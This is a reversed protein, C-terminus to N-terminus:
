RIKELKKYQINYKWTEEYKIMELGIWVQGNKVSRLFKADEHQIKTASKDMCIM